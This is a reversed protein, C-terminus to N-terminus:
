AGAVYGLWERLVLCSDEFASANPLWDTWLLERGPTPLGMPAPVVNLNGGAGAAAREFNRMARQMHFDHTVLVIREIGDAKLLAVTRMANERTDRSAGETWKLPRNFEREAIRGAIEAESPGAPSGHGIGGSFAVPLATERALWLGFRLRELSRANLNSLAYEPSLVQRGGGLVVIATKPARKLEKIEDLSLARPPALLGRELAGSVASTSTLWLGGVGLLILLWALLRRSFMLRAGVLILLLLPLPPLLLTTLAPKWSEIGLTFLLENM